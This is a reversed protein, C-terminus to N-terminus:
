AQGFIRNLESMYLLINRATTEYIEPMPHGFQQLVHRVKNILMKTEKEILPPEFIFDELEIDNVYNIIPNIFVLFFMFANLPLSYTVADDVDAKFDIRTHELVDGEGDPNSWCMGAIDVVRRMFTEFDHKHRNLIVPVGIFELLQEKDTIEDICRLDDFESENVETNINYNFM